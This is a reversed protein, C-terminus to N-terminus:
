VLKRNLISFCSHWGALISIGSSPAWFFGSL